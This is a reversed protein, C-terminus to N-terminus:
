ESYTAVLKEGALVSRASLSNFVLLPQIHVQQLPRARRRLLPQEWSAGSSMPQLFVSPLSILIGSAMSSLHILRM